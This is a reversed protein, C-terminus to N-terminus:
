FRYQRDGLWLSIPIANGNGDVKVAVVFARNGEADTQLQRISQNIEERQAEPFYYSELGYDVWRYGSMRGRIAVQNQPLNTPRAQSVATPQWPPPRQDGDIRTKPAELIVYFPVQILVNGRKQQKEQNEVLDSWGPLSRLEQPRSIEYRLTQSYGRLFDYPDVPVTQLIATKGLLLTYAAQTPIILIFLIQLALPLWFRWAPIKSSPITKAM